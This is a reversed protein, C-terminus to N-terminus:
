NGSSSQVGYRAYIKELEGSKKLMEIGEDIVRALNRSVKPLAPSLPVYMANGEIGGAFVLRKFEPHTELFYGMVWSDEIIVDVRGRKLRRVLSVLPDKGSSEEVQGPHASFYADLSDGSSYDKILGINVGKLSSVGDFKWDNEPSKWFVMRSIAAPHEHFVFDPADGRNLV